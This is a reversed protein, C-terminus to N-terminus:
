DKALCVVEGDQGVVILHGSVAALGDFKPRIALPITGLINGDKTDCILITGKSASKDQNVVAMYLNTGAHLLAKPLVGAQLPQEWLVERKKAERSCCFLQYGNFRKKKDETNDIGFIHPGAFTLTLGRALPVGRDTSYRWPRYNLDHWGGIPKVTDVM